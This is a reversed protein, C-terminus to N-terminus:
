LAKRAHNTHREAQLTDKRRNQLFAADRLKQVRPAYTYQDTISQVSGRGFPLGRRGVHPSVHHLLAGTEEIHEGDTAFIDANTPRATYHNRERDYNM